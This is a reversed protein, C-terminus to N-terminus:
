FIIVSHGLRKSDYVTALSPVHSSYLDSLLATCSSGSFLVYKSEAITISLAVMSSVEDAVM